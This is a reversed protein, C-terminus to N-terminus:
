EKSEKHVAQWASTEYKRHRCYSPFKENQQLNSKIIKKNYISMFFMFNSHKPFSIIPPAPTAPPVCNDQFNQFYIFKPKTKSSSNNSMM